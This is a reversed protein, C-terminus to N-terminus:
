GIKQQLLQVMEGVNKLENVEQMSFSVGFEEEITVVLDIHSVSDWEAIDRATTEDTLHITENDLVDRFIGNLKEYVKEKEM